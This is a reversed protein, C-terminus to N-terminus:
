RMNSWRKIPKLHEPLEVDEKDPAKEAAIKEQYEETSQSFTVKKEEKILAERKANKENMEDQATDDGICEVTIEINNENSEDNGKSENPEDTTPTTSEIQENKEIQEAQESQEVIDIPKSLEIVEVPTPKEDDPKTITTNIEANETAEEVEIQKQLATKFQEKHFVSHLVAKAFNNGPKRLRKKPKQMKDTQTESKPAEIEEYIHEKSKRPSKKPPDNKFEEELLEDITPEIGNDEALEEGTQLVDDIIITISTKRRPKTAVSQPAAVLHSAAAQPLAALVPPISTAAAKSKLDDAKDEEDVKRNEERRKRTESPSEDLEFIEVVDDSDRKELFAAVNKRESKPSDKLRIIRTEEALVIKRENPLAYKKIANAKPQPPKKPAKKHLQKDAMTKLKEVIPHCCKVPQPSKEDKELEDPITKTIQIKKPASHTRKLLSKFMSRKTEAEKPTSTSLDQNSQTASCKRNKSNDTTGRTAETELDQLVELIGSSSNKVSSKCSYSDIAKQADISAFNFSLLELKPEPLLSSPVKLDDIPELHIEETLAEQEEENPDIQVSEKLQNDLKAKIKAQM